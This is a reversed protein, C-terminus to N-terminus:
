AGKSSEMVKILEGGLLIMMATLHFWIFLVVLGILSGYTGGMTSIHLIYYSYLYTLGIWLCTICISSLVISKGSREQKKPALYYFFSLSFAIMGFPIGFKALTWVQLLFPPLSFYYAIGYVLANGFVLLLLSVIMALSLFLTFILSKGKVYVYPQVNRNGSFVQDMGRILTDVGNSSTWLALGLGTIMWVSSRAQVIQSLHHEIVMAVESPLYRILRLIMDMQPAAFFLMGNAFFILFPIVGLIFYYTSEAALANIDDRLFSVTLRRSIHWMSQWRKM